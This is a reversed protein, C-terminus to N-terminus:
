VLGIPLHNYQLCEGALASAASTRDLVDRHQEINGGKLLRALDQELNKPSFSARSKESPLANCRSVVDRLRAADCSDAGAEQIPFGFTVIVARDLQM